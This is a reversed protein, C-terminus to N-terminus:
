CGEQDPLSVSGGPKETTQSLFDMKFALMARWSHASLSLDDTVNLVLLVVLDVLGLDRVSMWHWSTVVGLGVQLNVAM